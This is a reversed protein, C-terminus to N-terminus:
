QFCRSVDRCMMMMMMMGSKSYVHQKARPGRAREEEGRWWWDKRGGGGTMRTAGTEGEVGGTSQTSQHQAVPGRGWRGGVGVCESM